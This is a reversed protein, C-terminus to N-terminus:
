LATLVTLDPRKLGAPGERAEHGGFIFLKLVAKNFHLQM